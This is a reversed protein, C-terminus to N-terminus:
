IHEKVKIDHTNSRELNTGWGTQFVSSTSDLGIKFGLKPGQGSIYGKSM